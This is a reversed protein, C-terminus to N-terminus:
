EDSGGEQFAGPIILQVETGGGQPRELKLEGGILEARERMASLGVGRKADVAIGVGADRVRLVLRTAEFRLEVWIERTEAHRAANNLAEQLIRYVHIAVEGRVPRAEPGAYHITAGTQKEFNAVHWEVAAALGQEELIVPQLSQSLHRIKGLTDQAMTAVEHVQERFVGEPAQREARRLMAGMATCIQGFEDHLDRSIAKLASEQTSILQRALDRREDALESVRAFLRRNTQILVASMLTVLVVGAALFLYANREIEAFIKVISEGALQEQEQNDVLLRATVASLAERRAELRERVAKRDNKAIVDEAEAWFQRFTNTLYAAQGANRQGRVLAAEKELADELNGRMRELPARWASLPYGEWNEGMDRLALGLANLENQIRLLQLSDKRNRDLIETQVQRMREVSFLTYGAYAGMVLLTFVLGAILSVTPSRM